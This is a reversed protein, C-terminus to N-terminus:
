KGGKRRPRRPGSNKSVHEWIEITTVVEHCQECPLPEDHEHCVDCFNGIGCKECNYRPDYFGKRERGKESPM